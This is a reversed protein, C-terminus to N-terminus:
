SRRAYMADQAYGDHLDGTYFDIQPSVVFRNLGTWVVHIDDDPGVALGTYDGHFVNCDKGEGEAYGEPGCVAPWATTYQGAWHTVSVDINEPSGLYEKSTGDWLVHQFADARGDAAPDIDEDWAAVLTGDSRYAAWPFWQHGFTGDLLNRGSWTQGGDTSTSVYVDTDSGPGADCPDYDPAEGPLTFFCGETANPNPTGRDAWIVSLTNPDNPDVAI